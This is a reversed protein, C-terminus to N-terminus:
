INRKSATICQVYKQLFRETLIRKSWKGYKKSEWIIYHFSKSLDVFIYQTKKKDLFKNM